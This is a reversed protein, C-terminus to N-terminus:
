CLRTSCQRRLDEVSVKEWQAYNAPQSWFQEWANNLADHFIDKTSPDVVRCGIARTGELAKEALAQLLKQPYCRRYEPEPKSGAALILENWRDEIEGAKKSFGILTLGHLMSTMRAADAPHTSYGGLTPVKFPEDGRTASLHLHSWVFAPGLTYVAFLDCFFEVAWNIIWSKSWQNLYFTFLEPGDKRSEKNLEDEFYTTVINIFDLFSVVFPEVRREYKTLLLLHALEHYM